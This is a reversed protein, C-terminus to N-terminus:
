RGGRMRAALERLLARERLLPALAHWALVVATLGYASWVYLGYGGMHLFEGLTKM